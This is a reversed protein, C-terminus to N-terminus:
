VLMTSLSITQGVLLESTPKKPLVSEKEHVLDVKDLYSVHNFLSSKMEKILGGGAFFINTIKPTYLNTM